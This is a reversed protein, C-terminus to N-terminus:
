EGSNRQVTNPIESQLEGMEHQQEKKNGMKM